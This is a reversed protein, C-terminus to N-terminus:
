NDNYAAEYAKLLASSPNLMMALYFWTILYLLSAFLLTIILVIFDFNYNFCIKVVFLDIIINSIWIIFESLMSIHNEKDNSAKWKKCVVIVIISLRMIIIYIGFFLLYSRSVDFDSMAISLIHMIGVGICMLWFIGANFIIRDSLETYRLIQNKQLNLSDRKKNKEINDKLINFLNSKLNESYSYAFSVILGILVPNFTIFFVALQILEKDEM